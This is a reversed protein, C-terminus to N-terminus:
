SSTPAVTGTTSTGPPSPFPTTLQDGSADTTSYYLNYQKPGGCLENTNGMCPMTCAKSGTLTSPEPSPPATAGYCERAYEIGVYRYTTPTASSLAGLAYSICLEPTMSDDAWLMKM